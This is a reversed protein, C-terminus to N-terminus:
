ASPSFKMITRIDALVQDVSLDDRVVLRLRGQADFVYSFASHDMTYSKGTPIKEFYVNFDDAVKRTGELDTRLGIFSPDFAVTYERMLAATDREPDITIFIVQLNSGEAGLRKRVEAARLLATPCVDPCQTFGFFLMVVKGRFDALTRVRGDPDVLRFDKGFKAGTVDIGSYSPDVRNCAALVLMAVVLWIRQHRM